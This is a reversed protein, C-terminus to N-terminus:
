TLKASVAKNLCRKIAITKEADIPETMREGLRAGKGFHVQEVGTEALFAPLSSLTLGSGAMIALSTGRSEAVLRKIEQVAELASAKGGSTLIREIQPYRLLVHFAEHLDRAEDFARHFTVGLGESVELLTELVKVDVTREPTLAGFVVGAAGLSKIARIDNKMARLDSEDYVFSRSHPRVMVYVPIRVSKVVEEIIGVSPTLGGELIGTILELRDAGSEEAIRADKANQVILELHM